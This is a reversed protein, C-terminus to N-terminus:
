SSQILIEIGDFYSSHSFPGTCAEDVINGIKAMAELFEKKTRMFASGLTAEITLSLTFSRSSVNPTWSRLAAHLISLDDDAIGDSGRAGLRIELNNLATFSELRPM